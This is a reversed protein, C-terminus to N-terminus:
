GRARGEAFLRCADPYGQMVSRSITQRFATEVRLECFYAQKDAVLSRRWIYTPRGEMTLRESWSGYRGLAADLQKGELGSRATAVGIPGQGAALHGDVISDRGASGAASACGSLAVACAIALFRIM